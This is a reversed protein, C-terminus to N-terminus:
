EDLAGTFIDTTSKLVASEGVLLAEFRGFVKPLESGIYFQASLVRGSYYAADANDSLLAAREEGKKDGVIEKMKPISITLSWLHAWALAVMHMAQQLPTAEMFLHLFKGGAMQAKMMEIVEDLKAMSREVLTIYKDDVIGKAKAMTANVEKVFVSLNYQEKNMLIKRMTLDMSQIGNTGEYICTIKSDRMLLEVPYDQTYGYGGYVQVAESTVEVSKDTHGAKCIPILLEALGKAEKVEDESGNHELDLCLALKYSLIRMGEVHSKMWLLTRKVDPHEIIAVGEAEPNLMQTVHVGQIRNKAYTIAHMYASSALALGQVGVGLRAENMMMFMIKMGKREEGLLYGTCKGEDGLSLQCTASGNIGMKHEIGACVIDNREGVSGDENVLYKPVLFISIGKTGKPDGEIRALVPHVMNGYYDNEASSIFIKQGSLLYTGDEQKVAKTTLAGVDSGAGPETLGMTGGWEGTILKEIYQKKQIDTGFTEILLMAGHTLGPYMTLAVSGASMYENVSLAVPLPMGMGGIEVSDSIGMFGTEYYADLPAKYSKPLKVDNTEPIFTCHEKDGEMNAPYIQEVAIREALNLTEDYIDKDYDAYKEIKEGLKDVELMEFLIFRVDRSDILPNQAM